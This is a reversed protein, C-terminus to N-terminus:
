GSGAESCKLWENLLCRCGPHIRAKWAQARSICWLLQNHSSEAPSWFVFRNLRGSNLNWTQPDREGSCGRCTVPVWPGFYSLFMCCANLVQVSVTVQPACSFWGQLNVRAHPSLGSDRLGSATAAGRCAWSCSVSVSEALPHSWESWKM